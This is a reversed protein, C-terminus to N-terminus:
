VMHSCLFVRTCATHAPSSQPDCLTLLPPIPNVCHTLLPPGPNVGHTLLSSRPARLTLLPPDPTVCHSCPPGPTVCHSCPLVPTCATHASQVASLPLHTCRALGNRPAPSRAFRSVAVRSLPGPLLRTQVVSDFIVTKNTAHRMQAVAPESLCSHGNPM